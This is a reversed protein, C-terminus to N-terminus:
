KSVQVEVKRKNKLSFFWSKRYTDIVYNYSTLHEKLILPKGM